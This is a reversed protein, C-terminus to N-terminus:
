GGPLDLLERLRNGVVTEEGPQLTVVSILLGHDGTGHVRATM